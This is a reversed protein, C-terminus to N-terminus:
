ALHLWRLLRRSRSQSVNALGQSYAYYGVVTEVVAGLFAAHDERMVGKSEGEGAVKVATATLKKVLKGLRMKKEDMERFAAVIAELLGPGEASRAVRGLVHRKEPETM